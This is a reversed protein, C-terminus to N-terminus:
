ITHTDADRGVLGPAGIGAILWLWTALKSREPLVSTVPPVTSFSRGYGGPGFEDPQGHTSLADELAAVTTM